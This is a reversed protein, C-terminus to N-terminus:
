LDDPAAETIELDDDVRRPPEPHSEPSQFKDKRYRHLFATRSRRPESNTTDLNDDVRRPPEPHSESSQFKDKRHLFATRSQRPENNTTELNGDVRRRQKPHSEPSQFKDNRHKNRHLFRTISQRPEKNGGQDADPEDLHEAASRKPAM